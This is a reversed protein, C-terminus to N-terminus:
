VIASHMSKSSPLSGIQFQIAPRVDILLHRVNLKRYAECSIRQEPPLLSLSSSSKDNAKLGCFMEYDVLSDKGISPNRGCVACDARRERLRVTRFTGTQGSFLLMKGSYDICLHYYQM